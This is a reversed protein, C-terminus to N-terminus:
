TSYDSESAPKGEFNPISTDQVSIEYSVSVAEKSTFYVYLSLTNTGYPNEIILMNDETYNGKNKKNELKEEVEDQYSSTYITSASTINSESAELIHSNLLVLGSLLVCCGGTLFLILLKIKERKTNQM